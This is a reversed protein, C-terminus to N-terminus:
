CLGKRAQMISRNLHRALDLQGARKVRAAVAEPTVGLRAPIRDPHEHQLLDLLDEVLAELQETM